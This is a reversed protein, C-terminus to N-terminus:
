AHEHLFRTAAPGISAANKLWPCHGGNVVRLEACPMAAAVREGVAPSGFPDRDGWLLLTPQTVLELESATLRHRPRNGRLRVLVHLTSLFTHRFGPLRETAVLLDILEAPLPYEGVMRSMQRVQSRSPPQLRTLLRGMPRASLLRMPFPASTELVVAPCGIHIMAAVRDPRELALWTAWLSGMSNSVFAPRELGLAQVAEDLFRVASTRLDEALDPTTDTLGYGPLDIAHLRFGSLHAMLPAWMAAPTGIGNVMVVPPGDGVVLAHARGGISPTYVFRSQAVVGYRDLMRRQAQTFELREHGAM